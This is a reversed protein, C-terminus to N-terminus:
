MFDSVDNQTYVINWARNYCHKIIETVNTEIKNFVLILTSLLISLIYVWIRKM